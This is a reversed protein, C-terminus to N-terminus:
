GSEAIEWPPLTLKNRRDPTTTSPSPSFGCRRPNSGVPVRGSFATSGIWRSRHKAPDAGIPRSRTSKTRCLRCPSGGVTEPPVPMEGSVSIIGGGVGEPIKWFPQPPRVGPAHPFQHCGFGRFRISPGNARLSPLTVIKGTTQQARAHQSARCDFVAKSHGEHGQGESLRNEFFAGPPVRPVDPISHLFTKVM